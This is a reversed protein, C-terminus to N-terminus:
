CFLSKFITIILPLNVAGQKKAEIKGIFGITEGERCIKQM